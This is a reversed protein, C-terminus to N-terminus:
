SRYNFQNSASLKQYRGAEVLQPTAGATRGPARRAAAATSFSSVAGAAPM